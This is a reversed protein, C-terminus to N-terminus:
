ESYAQPAFTELRTRPFLLKTSTTSGLFPREVCTTHHLNVSGPVEHLAEDNPCAALANRHLLRLIFSASMIDRSPVDLDCQITLLDVNSPYTVAFIQKGWCQNRMENAARTACFYEGAQGIPDSFPISGQLYISDDKLVEVLWDFRHIDSKIWRTMLGNLQAKKAGLALFLQYVSSSTELKGIIDEVLSFHSAGYIASIAKM